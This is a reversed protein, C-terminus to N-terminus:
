DIYSCVGVGFVGLYLLFGRLDFVFDNGLYMDFWFVVM